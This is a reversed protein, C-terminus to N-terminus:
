AIQTTMNDNILQIWKNRQNVVLKTIKGGKTKIALGNQAINFSPEACVENINELPIEMAHRQVNYKHSIFILSKDTLFLWGGVSESGMFHYAGEDFLVNEKKQIELRIDDFNRSQRSHFFGMASGFVTGLVIGCIIGTLPGFIITFFVAMFIGLLVGELIATKIRNNM